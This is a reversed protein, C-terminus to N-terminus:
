GITLLEYGDAALGGVDPGHTEGPTGLLPIGAQDCEEATGYVDACYACAGDIASQDQLANLATAVPHNPRSAIEGPWKTAEGDLFVSVDHDADLLSRAYEFGNVASGVDDLGATLCVAYKGM